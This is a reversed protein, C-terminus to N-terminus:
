PEYVHNNETHIPPQKNDKNIYEIKMNM